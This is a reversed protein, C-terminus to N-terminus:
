SEVDDAYFPITVNLRFYADERNLNSVYPTRYVVGDADTSRFATKISDTYGWVTNPNTGLPAFIQAIAIGITRFRKNEGLSVQETRGPLVTFRVYVSNKPISDFEVGDYFVKGIFASVVSEVQNYFRSNIAKVMDAFTLAM